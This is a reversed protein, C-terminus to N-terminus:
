AGQYPIFCFVGNFEPYFVSWCLVAHGTPNNALNIRAEPIEIWTAPVDGYAAIWDSIWIRRANQFAAADNEYVSSTRLANSFVERVVRAEYHRTQSNWRSEVMRCDSVSCCPTQRSGPITLSRFWDHYQGTADPPPDADVKITTGVFLLATVGIARIASSSRFM